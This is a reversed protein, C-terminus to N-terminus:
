LDSVHWEIEFALQIIIVAVGSDVIGGIELYTMFSLLLKVITAEQM